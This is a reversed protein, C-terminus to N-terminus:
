NTQRIKSDTFNLFLNIEESILQQIILLKKSEGSIMSKLTEYILCCFHLKILSVLLKQQMLSRLSLPLKLIKLTALLLQSKIAIGKMTKDLRFSVLLVKTKGLFALCEIELWRDM